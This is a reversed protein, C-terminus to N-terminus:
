RVRTEEHAGMAHDAAHQGDTFERPNPNVRLGGQTHRTLGIVRYKVICMPPKGGFGRGEYVGVGEGRGVGKAHTGKKKVGATQLLWVPM